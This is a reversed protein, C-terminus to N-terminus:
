RRPMFYVRCVWRKHSQHSGHQDRDCAHPNNKCGGGGFCPLAKALELGADRNLDDGAVVGFLSFEDRAGGLAQSDVHTVTFLPEGPRFDHADNGARFRTSRTIGLRIPTPTPAAIPSIVSWVSPAYRRFSDFGALARGRIQIRGM